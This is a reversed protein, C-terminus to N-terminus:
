LRVLTIPRGAEQRADVFSTFADGTNGSESYTLEQLEPLLGLPLEGNDLQLCSSVEQVLGTSVRLTKVNRFSSLLKRWEALRAENHEESSRDHVEHELTLHEVAFFVPSAADFIRAASSVQWDLHDCDATISLSYTEAEEHPYVEVDVVNNSFEFKAFGFRLNETSNVFQLLCPVSITLQNPFGIEFKELRPASLWYLLAELYATVGRFRFRRLNPLTVPKAIATHTHQGGVHDNRDPFLFNIMLTKLHPM